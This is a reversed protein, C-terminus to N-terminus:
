MAPDRSYRVRSNYFKFKNLLDIRILEDSLRTYRKGLQIGFYVILLQLGSSFGTILVPKITTDKMTSLSNVLVILRDYIVDILIIYRDKDVIDTQKVISDMARSRFAEIDMLAKEVSSGNSFNANLLEMTNEIEADLVTYIPEAGKRIQIIDQFVGFNTVIFDIKDKNSLVEDVKELARDLIKNTMKWMAFFGTLLFFVMMVTAPIYEKLIKIWEEPAVEM